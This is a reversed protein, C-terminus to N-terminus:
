KTYSKSLNGQTEAKIWGTDWWSSLGIDACYKMPNEDIKQGNRYASKGAEYAKHYKGKPELM